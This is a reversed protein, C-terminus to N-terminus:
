QIYCEYQRWRERSNIRVRGMTACQVRFWRAPWRRKERAGTTSCPRQLSALGRSPPLSDFGGRGGAGADTGADGSGARQHAWKKGAATWDLAEAQGGHARVIVLLGRAELTRRRPSINGKAGDLAGVREQHSRSIVGRTRREDTALWALLRTQVRSCRRAARPLEERGRARETAAHAHPLRGSVREARASEPHPAAGGAGSGRGGGLRERVRAGPIAPCAALGPGGM